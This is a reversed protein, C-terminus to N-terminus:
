RRSWGHFLSGAQPRYTLTRSAPVQRANAGTGTSRRSYRGYAADVTPIGTRFPGPMDLRFTGGDTMTFSSARDPVGSKNANLVTRLRIKAERVLDSPPADLGYEYEVIVNRRGATFVDGGTRVMTGDAAVALDALQGATFATFTGDPSDAMTVSRVTRVEAVSRYTRDPHQLVLEDTGSGDLVVRAYRPVFALDCINECEVEVELRAATLDATPYTTTDALSADSDRGQKLTFFHGGVIEAYTTATTASGAVTASWTVTLAKLASQAALVFTYTGTSAGASSATGSTVAAGTADVVAYTVSGTADTPTEDVLFTHSLTGASNKAIRTLTAM